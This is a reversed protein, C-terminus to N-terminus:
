RREGGGRGRGRVSLLHPREKGRVEQFSYLCIVCQGYPVNNNTLIEKGKEILEYLVPCGVSSEALQRLSHDLSRIKEDSLGRPNQISIKPVSNPYQAPLSLHLTLRVFQSEPDEATSPFLTISVQWPEASNPDHTLHLEDLYIAELVEIESEASRESAM